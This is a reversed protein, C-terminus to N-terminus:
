NSSSANYGNNELTKGKLEGAVSDYKYANTIGSSPVGDETGMNTFTITYVNDSDFFDDSFTLFYPLM